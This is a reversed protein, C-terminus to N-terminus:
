KKNKLFKFYILLVMAITFLMQISVILIENKFFALGNVLFFSLLYSIFLVAILFLKRKWHINLFLIGVFIILIIIFEILLFYLAEEGHAFCLFPIFLLLISNKFNKMKIKWWFKLPIESFIFYFKNNM